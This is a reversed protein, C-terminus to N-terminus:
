KPVGYHRQYQALLGVCMAVQWRNYAAREPTGPTSFHYGDLLTNCINCIFGNDSECPRAYTLPTVPHVAVDAVPM